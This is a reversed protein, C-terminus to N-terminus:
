GPLMYPIIPVPLIRLTRMAFSKRLYVMLIKRFKQQLLAIQSRKKSFQDEEQEMLFKRAISMSFDEHHHYDYLYGTDHFLGAIRVLNLQQISLELYQGIKTVTEVVEATHQWNHFTLSAPMQKFIGKVFELGKSENVM